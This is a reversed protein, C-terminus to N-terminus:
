RITAAGAEYAGRALLKRTNRQAIVLEVLRQLTVYMLLLPGNTM